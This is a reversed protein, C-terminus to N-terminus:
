RDLRNGSVPEPDEPARENKLVQVVVNPLPPDDRQLVEELTAGKFVNAISVKMERFIQHMLDMEPAEDPVEAGRPFVAWFAEVMTIRDLPRYPVFTEDVPNVSILIRKEELCLLGDHIIPPPVKLYDALQYLSPPPRGERFCRGIIILSALASQAVLAPDHVEEKGMLGRSHLTRYCYAVEAGYLFIVWSTYMWLLTVPIFALAGYVQDYFVPSSLYLTFGYKAIEWLTASVCGGLLCPIVGISAYPLVFYSLFFLLWSVGFTMAHNFYYTDFRLLWPIQAAKLFTFGSLGLLMPGWFFLTTCTLISRVLSPFRKVMFIKNLVYEITVYLIITSVIVSIVSIISLGFAKGTLNEFYDVFQSKVTSDPVMHQLILDRAKDLSAKLEDFGYFIGFWLASTPILALSGSFSLSGAMSWGGDRHFGILARNFFRLARVLNALTGIQTRPIANTLFIDLQNLYYEM